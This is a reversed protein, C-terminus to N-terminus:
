FSVSTGGITITGNGPLFPQGMEEDGINLIIINVQYLGPSGPVLGAYDVRAPGGFVNVTVPEVVASLPSALPASGAVPPNTVAGLGTMYITYCTDPQLAAFVGTNCGIIADSGNVRFIGPLYKFVQMSYALSSGNANKVVLSAFGVFANLPTLFDIQNRSANILPVATGNIFVSTGGLSFPLPLGEASKEAGNALDTGYISAISGQSSGLQGTASERVGGVTPLPPAVYPQPVNVISPTFEFIKITGKVLKTVVWTSVTCPFVEITKTDPTDWDNTAGVGLTVYALTGTNKISTKMVVNSNVSYMADVTGYPQDNILGPTNLMSTDFLQGSLIQTLQSVGNKLYTIVSSGTTSATLANGVGAAFLRGVGGSIAYQYLDDNRRMWVWDLTPRLLTIKEASLSQSYVMRVLTLKDSDKSGGMVFVGLRANKVSANVDTGIPSTTYYACMIIHTGNNQSAQITLLYYHNAGDFGIEDGTSLMMGSEPIYQGLTYVLARNYYHVIDMKGPSQEYMAFYVRNFACSMAADKQLGFPNGVSGAVSPQFGVQQNRATSLYPKQLVVTSGSKVSLHLPSVGTLKLVNDTDVYSIVGGSGCRPYDAPPNVGAIERFNAPQGVLGPASFLILLFVVVSAKPM